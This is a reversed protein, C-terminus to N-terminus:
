HRSPTPFTDPLHWSTQCFSSLPGGWNLKDKLSKPIDPRGLKCVYPHQKFFTRVQFWFNHFIQHHLFCELHGPQPHVGDQTVRRYGGRWLVSSTWINGPTSSWWTRHLVMSPKCCCFPSWNWIQGLIDTILKIKKNMLAFFCLSYKWITVIFSVLQPQSTGLEPLNLSYM